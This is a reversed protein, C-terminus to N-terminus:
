CLKRSSASAFLVVPLLLVVGAAKPRQSRVVPPLLMAMWFLQPFTEFPLLLLMWMPLWPAEPSLPAM